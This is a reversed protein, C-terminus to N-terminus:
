IFIIGSVKVSILKFAFFSMGMLFKDVAEDPIRITYFEFALLAVVAALVIGTTKM